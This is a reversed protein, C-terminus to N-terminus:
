MQIFIIVFPFLGNEQNTSNINYKNFLISYLSQMITM